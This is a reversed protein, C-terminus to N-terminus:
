NLPVNQPMPMQYKWKNWVTEDLILDTMFAAVNSRSTQGGGFLPGYPKDFIKFESVDDGHILEDPRVVVWEVNSSQGITNSVYHVTEENDKHPPLLIRLMSLAIREDLPRVDESGDPNAVGKTGMLIMKTPTSLPASASSSSSSSSSLSSQSSSSSAPSQLSQLTEHVRKISDRVLRRPKGYVGRFTMNHGLCSVIVDCGGVLKQMEEDTMGLVSGEFVVLNDEYKVGHLSGLLKDTSRVIARVSQGQCILQRVLQNGTGGTAGLVLTVM